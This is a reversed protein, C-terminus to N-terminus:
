EDSGEKRRWKLIGIQLVNETNANFGHAPEGGFGFLRKGDFVWPTTAVGYPMVGVHSYNDKDVHYCLIRDGYGRWLSSSEGHKVKIGPNSKSKGVRYTPYDSSGMLLIHNEDIPVASGAIIPFPTRRLPTWHDREADYCYADRFNPVGNYPVRIGYKSQLEVFISRMEPDTVSGGFVYVKGGAVAAQVLARPGGPYPAIREWAAGPAGRRLRYDMLQPKDGVESPAGTPTGALLILWRGRVVAVSALWRGAGEAEPLAPLDQWGWTGASNRALAFVSRGSGRGGIVFLSRGDCGGQTYQPRAPPPPLSEYMQEEINFAYTLNSRGPMWLGGSLVIQDDVIGAVGGKWAIPLNPGISWEIEVPSERLVGEFERDFPLRGYARNLQRVVFLNSHDDRWLTSTAKEDDAVAAAPSPADDNFVVRPKSEEAQLPACAFAIIGLPILIRVPQTM